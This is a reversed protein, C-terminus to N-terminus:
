YGGNLANPTVSVMNFAGGAGSPASFFPLASKALGTVGGIISGWLNSNAQTKAMALQTNANTQAIQQAAFANTSNIVQQTANRGSDIALAASSTIASNNVGATAQAMQAGYLANSQIMTQLLPAYANVAAVGTQALANQAATTIQYNQAAIQAGQNQANMIAALSTGGGTSASGGRSALFLLGLVGGGIWVWKNSLMKDFDAM